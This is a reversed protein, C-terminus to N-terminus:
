ASSRTRSVLIDARTLLKLFRVLEGLIRLVEAEEPVEAVILKIRGLRRADCFAWEGVEL